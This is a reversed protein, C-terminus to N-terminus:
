ILVSKAMRSNGLSLMYKCVFIVFMLSSTSLNFNTPAKLFLRFFDAKGEM